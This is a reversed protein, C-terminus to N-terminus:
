KAAVSPADSVLASCDIKLSTWDTLVTKADTASGTEVGKVCQNLDFGGM